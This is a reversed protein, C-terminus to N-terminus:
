NLYLKSHVEEVAPSLECSSHWSELFSWDAATVAPSFPSRRPHKVHSSFCCCHTSESQPPEEPRCTLPHCVVCLPRGSWSWVSQCSLFACVNLTIQTNNTQSPNSNMVCATHKSSGSVRLVSVCFVDEPRRWVVWQIILKNSTHHFHVDHSIGTFIHWKWAM